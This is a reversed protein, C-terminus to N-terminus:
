RKLNFIYRDNATGSDDIVYVIKIACYASDIGIEELIKITNPHVKGAPNSGASEAKIKDALDRSIKQRLKRWQNEQDSKKIVPLTEGYFKVDYKECLKEVLSFDQVCNKRTNHNFHLVEILKKDCVKTAVNLLVISDIGGSVLLLLKKDSLKEKELFDAFIQELNM